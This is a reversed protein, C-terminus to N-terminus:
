SSNKITVLDVIQFRRTIKKRRAIFGTKGDQGEKGKTGEERGGEKRTM